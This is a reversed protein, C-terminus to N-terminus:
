TFEAITKVGLCWFFVVEMKLLLWKPMFFKCGEFATPHDLWKSSSTWFWEGGAKRLKKKHSRIKQLPFHREWNCEVLAAFCVVKTIAVNRILCHLHMSIKLSIGILPVPNSIYHGRKTAQRKLPVIICNWQYISTNESMSAQWSWM